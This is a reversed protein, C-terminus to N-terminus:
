FLSGPRRWMNPLSLFPINKVIGEAEKLTLFHSQCARRRIRIISKKTSAISKENKFNKM